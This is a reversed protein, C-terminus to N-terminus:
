LLTILPAPCRRIDPLHFLKQISMATDITYIEALLNGWLTESNPYDVGSRGLPADAPCVHWARQLDDRFRADSNRIKRVPDIRSRSPLSSFTITSWAWTMM